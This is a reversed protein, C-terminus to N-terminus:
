CENFCSFILMNSMKTIRNGEGKEDEENKVNLYLFSMQLATYFM